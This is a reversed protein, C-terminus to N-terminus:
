GYRPSAVGVNAFCGTFRNIPPPTGMPPLSPCALCDNCGYLCSRCVTQGELLPLDLRVVKALHGANLKSRPIFGEAGSTDIDVLWPDFGSLPNM